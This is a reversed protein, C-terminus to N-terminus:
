KSHDATEIAVFATLGLGLKEPSALAARGVIM